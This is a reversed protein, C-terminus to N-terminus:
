PLLFHNFPQYQKLQLIKRVDVLRRRSVTIEYKNTLRLSSELESLCDAFAMNVLFTKHIRFFNYNKFLEEFQKITKAVIMKKGNVFHVTIYNVDAEFFLIESPLAEQRAGIPIYIPYSNAKM